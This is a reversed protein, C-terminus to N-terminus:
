QVSEPLIRFRLRIWIRRPLHLLVLTLLLCLQLMVAVFTVVVVVTVVAIFVIIVIVVFVLFAVQPYRASIPWNSKVRRHYQGGCRDV